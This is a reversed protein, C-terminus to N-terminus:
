EKWLKSKKSVSNSVDDDWWKTERHRISRKDLWLKHKYNGAFAIKFHEFIM